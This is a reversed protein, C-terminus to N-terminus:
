IVINQASLQIFCVVFILKGQKKGSVICSRPVEFSGHTCLM